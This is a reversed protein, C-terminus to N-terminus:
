QPVVRVADSHDIRARIAIAEAVTERKGRAITEWVQGISRTGSAAKGNIAVRKQVKFMKRAM